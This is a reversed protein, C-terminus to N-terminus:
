PYFVTLNGRKEFTSNESSKVKIQYIYTGTPAPQGNSQKGDWGENPDTTQFVIYGWRNYVKMEFDTPTYSYKANFVDNIGDGNPTFAEPIYVKPQLYICVTNSQSYYSPEDSKIARVFYCIKGSIQEDTMRELDDAFSNYNEISRILIPDTDGNIRYLEYSTNVVQHEKFLNWNLSNVLENNSVELIINNSIDSETKENDCGDVSVLKYYNITTEANADIDTSSILLDSTTINEIASFTGTYSDSKKLTYNETETNPAIEFQLDVSTGSNSASVAKIYDPSELMETYKNITNSKSSELTNVPDWITNIYFSTNVNEPINELTYSNETGSINYTNLVGDMNTNLDYRVATWAHTIDTHDFVKWTFNMEAACSDYNATIHITSVIDTVTGNPDSALVVQYARPKVNANTQTDIYFDTSSHVTAIDVLGNIEASDRRVILNAAGSYNWDILVHGQDNYVYVNNLSLQAKTSGVFVCLIFFIIHLTKLKM